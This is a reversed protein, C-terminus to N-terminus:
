TNKNEEPPDKDTTSESEGSNPTENSESTEVEKKKPEKNWFYSAVSIIISLGIFIIIMPISTIISIFRGLKPICNFVKTMIADRTFEGDGSVSGDKDGRITYLITPNFVKSYTTTTEPVEESTFISDGKTETSYTVKSLYVQDENDAYGPLIKISRSDSKPYDYRVTIKYLGEEVVTSTTVYDHYDITESGRQIIYYLPYQQSSYCEIEIATYRYLETNKLLIIGDLYDYKLVKNNHFETVTFGETSFDNGKERISVIRHVTTAGIKPNYFLVVDKVELPTDEHVKESVVIDYPQYQTTGELFDAYKPNRESMSSTLVMDARINGLYIAGNTFKSIIAFIALAYFIILFSFFFINGIIKKKKKTM